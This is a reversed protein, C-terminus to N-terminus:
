FAAHKQCKKLRLTKLGIIVAADTYVKVFEWDAHRKIFQTYYDVQAEYSTYQEDKDTSVRAYGAVRRKKVSPDTIRRIGAKTAPIVTVNRKQM